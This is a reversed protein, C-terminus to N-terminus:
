RLMAYRQSQAAIGLHEKIEAVRQYDIMSAISLKGNRSILYNGIFVLV